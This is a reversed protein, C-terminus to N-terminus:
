LHRRRTRKPPWTQSFTYSNTLIHADTIRIHQHLYITSGAMNGQVAFHATISSKTCGAAVGCMTKCVTGLCTLLLFRQPFVATLMDTATIHITARTGESPRAKGVAFRSVPKTVGVWAHPWQGLTLGADNIVDAFLRWEKINGDFSTAALSSFVLSCTM